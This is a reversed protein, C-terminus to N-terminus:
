QVVLKVELKNRTRPITIAGIIIRAIDLCRLNPVPIKHKIGM